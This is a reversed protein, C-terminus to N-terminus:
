RKPQNAVSRWAATLIHMDEATMLWPAGLAMAADLLASAASSWVPTLILDDEENATSAAPGLLLHARDWVAQWTVTLGCNIPSRVPGPGAALTGSYDWEEDTMAVGIGTLWKRWAKSYIEDAMLHRFDVLRQATSPNLRAGFAIVACVAEGHDGFLRFTPVEKCVQVAVARTYDAYALPQEVGEADLVEVLFLKGPWRAVVVSALSHHVVIWPPSCDPNRVITGEVAGVFMGPEITGEYVYGRVSEM